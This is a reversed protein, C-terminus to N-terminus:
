KKVQGEPNLRMNVIEMFVTLVDELSAPAKGTAMGDKVQQEMKQFTDNISQLIHFHKEFTTDLQGHAWDRVSKILAQNLAELAEPDDKFTPFKDAIGANHALDAEKLAVDLSAALRDAMNELLVESEKQLREELRPGFQVSEKAFAEKLAPLAAETVQDLEKSVVPWVRKAGEVQLATVFTEVDFQTFKTYTRKAFVGLIVLIALTAAIRVYAAKQREERMQKLLDAVVAKTSESSEGM